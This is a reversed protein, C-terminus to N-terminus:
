QLKLYSLFGIAPAGNPLEGVCQTLAQLPKLKPCQYPDINATDRPEELEPSRAIAQTARGM